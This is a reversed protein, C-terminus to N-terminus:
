LWGVERGEFLVQLGDLVVQGCGSFLQALNAPEQRLARRLGLRGLNNFGFGLSAILFRRNTLVERSGAYMSERQGHPRVATGRPRDSPARFGMEEPRDRVLCFFVLAGIPMLLVPLRFIWVWSLHELVLISCAFTLVSSFGAAFTFIGFAKGREGHGWWNTILRSGPAFGMSQVSGNLSWPIILTWFGQGFSTIWNFLCSLIAGLTVMRRGGFRDGLPGSVIQGVGYFVLATGSIWGIQTNSLSLDEAIGKIAWGFNQRGTYYFLYCFSAALLV